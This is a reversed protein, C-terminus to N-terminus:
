GFVMLPTTNNAGPTLPLAVITTEPIIAPGLAYNLAPNWDLHNYFRVGTMALDALWCSGLRVESMGLSLSPVQISYSVTGNFIAQIVRTSADAKVALHKWSQDYYHVSPTANFYYYPGGAYSDNITPGYILDHDSISGNMYGSFLEFGAGSSNRIQIFTPNENGRKQYWCEFGWQTLNAYQLLTFRLFNYKFHLLGTGWPSTEWSGQGLNNPVTLDQSYLSSSSSYYSVADGEPHWSQRSKTVNLLIPM